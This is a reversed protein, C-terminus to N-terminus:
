VGVFPAVFHGEYKPLDHIDMFGDIFFQKGIIKIADHYNGVFQVPIVDLPYARKMYLYLNEWLTTQSIVVVKLTKNESMRMGSLMMHIINPPTSYALSFDAIVDIQHNVSKAMQYADQASRWFEERSWRVGFKMVLLTKEPDAWVLNIM